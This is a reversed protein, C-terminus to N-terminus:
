DYANQRVVATVGAEIAPRNANVQQTVAATVQATVGATVASVFAPNNQLSGSTSAILNGRIGGYPVQIPTEDGYVNMGDYNPAGLPGNDDRTSM